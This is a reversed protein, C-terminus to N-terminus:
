LDLNIDAYAGGLTARYDDESLYMKTGFALARSGNNSFLGGAGFMSPPSVKDQKSVPTVYGAVWALGAGISPSNVPIPAVVWEGEQVPGNTSQSGQAQAFLMTSAAFMSLLNLSRM